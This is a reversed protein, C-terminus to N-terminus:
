GKELINSFIKLLHQGRGVLRRGGSTQLGSGDAAVNTSQPHRCINPRYSAHISISSLLMLM